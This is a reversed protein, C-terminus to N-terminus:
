AWYEVMTRRAYDIDTVFHIMDQVELENWFINMDRGFVNKSHGGAGGGLRWKSNNVLVHESM